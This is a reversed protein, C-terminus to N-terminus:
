LVAGATLTHDRLVVSVRGRGGLAECLRLLHGVVWVKGGPQSCCDLGGVVYVCVAVTPRESGATLEGVDTGMM